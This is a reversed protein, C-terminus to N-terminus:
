IVTFVFVNMVNLLWNHSVNSAYMVCKGLKDTNGCWCIKKDSQNM